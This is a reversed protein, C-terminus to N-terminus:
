CPLYNYVYNQFTVGNQSISGSAGCSSGGLLRFTNAGRTSRAEGGGVGGTNPNNRLSGDRNIRKGQANHAVGNWTWQYTATASAKVYQASTGDDFTVTIVTGAAISAPNIGKLFLAQGIGPIIEEDLNSIFSFAYDTPVKVTIPNSRKVGFLVQDLQDFQAESTITGGEMDIVVGVADVLESEPLGERIKTKITGSVRVYATRDYNQSLVAYTGTKVLTQAQAVAHAAFEASSACNPCSTVRTYGNLAHAQSGILFVSIAPLLANIFKRARQSACEKHM